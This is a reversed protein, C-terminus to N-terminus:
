RRSRQKSSKRNFPKSLFEDDGAEICAVLAESESLATLLIVPVCNTGALVKTRTTAEYVNMVPMM